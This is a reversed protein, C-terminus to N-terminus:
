GKIATAFMLGEYRREPGDAPVRDMVLSAPLFGEELLMTRLDLPFLRVALFETAGVTYSDAGTVASVLLRGSPRLLSIIHSMCARWEDYNRAAAEACFNTMVVDYLSTDAGLPHPQHADCSMVRTVRQRVLAERAAIVSASAAKGELELIARTFASWDFREERGQLWGQIADLNASFYDAIHIERAREVAALSAYLTPGCGFDLIRSDPPASRLAAVLFRLLAVNEPSVTAYYERLYAAPHFTSYDSTAGM